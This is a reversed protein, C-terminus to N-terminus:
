LENGELDYEKIYQLYYARAKQYRIVYWHNWFNYVWNIKKTCGLHRCALCSVIQYETEQTSCIWEKYWAQAEQLYNLQEFIWTGIWYSKLTQVYWIAIDNSAYPNFSSEFNVLAIQNIIKRQEWHTAEWWIEVHERPPLMVNKLDSHFLCKWEQPPVIEKIIDDWCAIIKIEEPFQKTFETWRNKEEQAQASEPLWFCMGILMGIIVGGIVNRM